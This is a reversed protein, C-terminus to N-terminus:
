DGINVDAAALGFDDEGRVFLRVHCLGHAQEPVDLQVHFPGKAIVLETSTLRRDNAQRYVEQFRALEGSTQPFARRVPPRITLRDRRAVLEITARGGVPSTGTVDLPKGPKASVPVVIELPKAHRLRLMPDGFLNFLLLHEAREAALQKPAPSIAAAVADLMARGQDEETPEKVMARKAELFAEGLTKCRQRFCQDMLASGMVAMAYPMTVRSGALVAVPAGRTRLMEEALCDRRADFAGTYCALFLAIPAAHRSALKGVDTTGLIHYTGGPVRVRDLAVHHGHGIYVWFWCGENLREVTVPHFLRPDPCYPSRWSGYTMAVAYEAPIDQTLFYRTASELVLDALPGFGGLGAVFNLQRRWPGFDSSCEYALIKAVIQKLQDPSDATLRGLAVDPVQDDDLDAYWNDTAIQQESGWLVNVQAKAYHAPVCRARVTPDKDCGPEADGVLVVFRLRGGRAVQRIARRIEEPSGQASVWAFTHGQGGRHALWPSLAERFTAPCVVAVDPSAQSVVSLLWVLVASM